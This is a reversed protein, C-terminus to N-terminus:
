VQGRLMARIREEMDKASVVGLDPVHSKERRASSKYGREQKSKPHKHEKHRGGKREPSRSGRGRSRGEKGRKKRKEEKGGKASRRGREEGRGTGPSDESGSSEGEGKRRRKSGEKQVGEGKEGRRKGSTKHRSEAKTHEPTKERPLTEVGDFAQGPNLTQRKARLLEELKPLERPAPPSPRKEEAEVIEGPEPKEGFDQTEEEQV